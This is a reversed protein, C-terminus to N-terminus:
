SNDESFFLIALNLKLPESIDTTVLDRNFIPKFSVAYVVSDTLGDWRRENNRAPRVLIDILMNQAKISSGSATKANAATSRIPFPMM